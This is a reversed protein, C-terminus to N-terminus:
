NNSILKRSISYGDPFSTQYEKFTNESEILGVGNAYIQYRKIVQLFNSDSEQEVTLTSEYKKTHVTYNSDIATYRYLDRDKTNNQNGDWTKNLKVPFVLLTHVINDMKKELRVNNISFSVLQKFEWPSSSDPRSKIEALFIRTEGSSELLEVITEQEYYTSTDITELLANFSISDVKYVKSYGIELPFYNFGIDPSPESERCGLFTM